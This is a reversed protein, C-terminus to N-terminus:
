THSAEVLYKTNCKADLDRSASGNCATEQLLLWGNQSNHHTESEKSINQGCPFTDLCGTKCIVKFPECTVRGRLHSLLATRIYHGLLFDNSHNNAGRNPAFGLSEQLRTRCCVATFVYDTKCIIKLQSDRHFTEM